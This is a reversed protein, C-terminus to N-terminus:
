FHFNNFSLHFHLGADTVTTCIIFWISKEQQTFVLYLLVSLKSYSKLGYGENTGTKLASHWDFCACGNCQFEVADV